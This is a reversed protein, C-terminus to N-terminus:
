LAKLAVIASAVGTVDGAVTVGVSLFTGLVSLVDALVNRDRVWAANQYTRATAQQAPFPLQLYDAWDDRSMGTKTAITAICEERTV